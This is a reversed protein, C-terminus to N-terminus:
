RQAGCFILFLVRNRHLLTVDVRFGARVSNKRVVASRGQFSRLHLHGSLFANQVADEADERNRLIARAIAVFKPRSAVFMQHSAEMEHGHTQTEVSSRSADSVPRCSAPRENRKRSRFVPLPKSLAAAASAGGGLRASTCAYTMTIERGGQNMFCSRIWRLVKAPSDSM